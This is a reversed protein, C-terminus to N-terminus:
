VIDVSTVTIQTIGGTEINVTAGIEMRMKPVSISAQTFELTFYTVLKVQYLDSSVPTLSSYHWVYGGSDTDIITRLLSKTADVNSIITVWDVFEPDEAYLTNYVGNVMKTLTLVSPDGFVPKLLEVANIRDIEVEINVLESIVSGYVSTLKEFNEQTDTWDELVNDFQNELILFNNHVTNLNGSLISMDDEVTDVKDTLVTITDALENITDTLELIASLSEGILTLSSNMGSMQTNILEIDTEVDGIQDEITRNRQNVMGPFLLAYGSGLGLSAGLLLGILVLAFPKSIIDKIQMFISVVELFYAKIM